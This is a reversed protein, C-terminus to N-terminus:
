SCPAEAIKPLYGSARGGSRRILLGSSRIGAADAAAFAPQVARFVSPSFRLLDALSGLASAVPPPRGRVLERSELRSRINTGWATMERLITRRTADSWKEPLERKFELVESEPTSNAVLAELDQGGISDLPQHSVM